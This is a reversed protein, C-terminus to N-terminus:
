AQDQEACRQEAAVIYAMVRPDLERELDFHRSAKPLEERPKGSAIALACYAAERLIQRSSESQDRFIGIILRLLRCDADEILLNGTLSIALLRVDDEEDWYVKRLFGELVTKYDSALGWYGCLILLALRALLPGDSGALYKEVTRRHQTAGSRGIILLADYRDCASADLLQIVEELEQQLLRGETAKIVLEKTNM